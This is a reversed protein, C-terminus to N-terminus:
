DFMNKHKMAYRKCVMSIPQEKAKSKKKKRRNKVETIYIEHISGSIWLGGDFPSEMQGHTVWADTFKLAAWSM